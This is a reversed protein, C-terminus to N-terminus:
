PSELLIRNVHGRNPSRYAVVALHECVVATWVAQLIVALFVTRAVVAFLQLVPVEHGTLSLATVNERFNVALYKKESRGANM